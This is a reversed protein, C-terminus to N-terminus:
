TDDFYDEDIRKVEYHLETRTGVGNQVMLKALEEGDILVIRKKTTAVVDRAGRTFGATTVFVGKETRAADIAGVFSRLDNVQVAKDEAYKKAQVYIEDLGLTDERIAGDIGGDGPRGTVYGMKPDGGGYGLAILLDVVVHEFFAPTANRVRSLMDVVLESNMQEIADDLAERPTRAPSDNRSEKTPKDSPTPKERRAKRWKEFSPYEGLRKMDIHSPNRSLLNRGEQTSRFVGRRTRELLGAHMMYTIAWGVRDSFRTKKGSPLMEQLDSASLGETNAVRERIAPLATDEGSALARLAPLMLSEFDPVAM